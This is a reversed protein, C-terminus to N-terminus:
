GLNNVAPVCKETAKTLTEVTTDRSGTLLLGDEAGGGWIGSGGSAAVAAAASVSSEGVAALCTVVDDHLTLAQM